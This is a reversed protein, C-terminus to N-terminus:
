RSLARTGGVAHHGLNARAGAARGEGHGDGSLRRQKMTRLRPHAAQVARAVETSRDALVLATSTGSGTMPQEDVARREARLLRTYVASAFGALWSRRYAAVSSASPHGWSDPIVHVLDRVAQVLLSTYLLEVRDLDARRTLTLQTWWSM